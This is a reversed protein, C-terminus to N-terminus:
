HGKLADLNVRLPPPANPDGKLPPAPASTEAKAASKATTGTAKAPVATAPAALTAEPIAAATVAPTTAATATETAPPAPVQVIVTTAPPPAKSAAIKLTLAATGGMALVIALLVLIGSKASRGDDNQIKRVEAAIRRADPDTAPGGDLLDAPALRGTPKPTVGIGDVLPGDQPGLGPDTQTHVEVSPQRPNPARM